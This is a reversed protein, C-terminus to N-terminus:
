KLCPSLEVQKKRKLFLEVLDWGPEEVIMARFGAERV